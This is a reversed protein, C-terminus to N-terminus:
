RKGGQTSQSANQNQHIIYNDFNLYSDRRLCPLSIESQCLKTNVKGADSVLKASDDFSPSNRLFYSCKILRINIDSMVYSNSGIM